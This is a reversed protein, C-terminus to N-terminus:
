HVSSSTWEVVGWSAAPCTKLPTNVWCLRNLHRPCNLDSHTTQYERNGFLAPLLAWDCWCLCISQVAHASFYIRFICQNWSTSRTLLKVMWNSNQNIPLMLHVPDEKLLLVADQDIPAWIPLTISRFWLPNDSFIGMHEGNVYNPIRAKATHGPRIMTQMGWCCIGILLM